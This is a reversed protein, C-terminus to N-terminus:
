VDLWNRETLEKYLRSIPLGVVNAYEGRIEKVYKAGLGQIAYAGAKDLPEKTKVYADIEENTMPQMCVDTRQVFSLTEHSDAIGRFVTVGTLVYHWDGAIESLIRVADEEDKPKGLRSDGHFVLTDAAILLLEEGAFSVKANEWVELAKHLSLDSVIEEPVSKTVVEDAKSVMIDFSFGANTLLEKRRPSQSALIIRM